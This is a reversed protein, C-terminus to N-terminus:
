GISADVPTKCPHGSATVPGPLRSSFIVVYTLAGGMLSVDKLLNMKAMQPNGAKLAPVHLTVVIVLLLLALCFAAKQGQIKTVFAACALILCVGTFYIWFVGGPLCAPLKDAMDRAHFLHSMGFAGFPLAFLIRAILAVTDKM